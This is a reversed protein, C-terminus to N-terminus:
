CYLKLQKKRLENRKISGVPVELNLLTHIKRYSFLFHHEGVLKHICQEVLTLAYFNRNKNRYYTNRSIGFLEKLRIIPLKDVHHQNIFHIINKVSM